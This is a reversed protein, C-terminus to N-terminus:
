AIPLIRVALPVALSLAMGASIFIRCTEQPDVSDLSPTLRYDALELLPTDQLFLLTRDLMQYNDPAAPLALCRVSWASGPNEGARGPGPNNLIPDQALHYAFICLDAQSRAPHGAGVTCQAHDALSAALGTLADSIPNQMLSGKAQIRAALRDPDGRQGAASSLSLLCALLKSLRPGPGALLAQRHGTSIALGGVVLKAGWSTQRASKRSPM